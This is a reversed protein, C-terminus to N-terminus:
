SLQAQAEGIGAEVAQVLRDVQDRTLVLPPRITITDGSPRVIVGAKLATEYVVRGAAGPVDFPQKRGPDRWLEVAAAMGLGRVEGVVPYRALEKLRGILYAGTEAAAQPLNEREIIALNANGAACCTAHGSYTFGHSLVQEGLEGEITDVIRRSIIAGGLPLYGSTVGKAVTMIDPVVNWHEIGFWKGTRGFGCVVEDCIFLVGYKDCIARVRPFYDEPPPVHGGVGLVPEAIFAAVTDPGEELIAQELAEASHTEVQRFGPVLPGFHKRFQPLGSASLTALTLGHYSRQRSIIKHREPRGLAAFYCRAIKFATENAESGGSTFFVCDLDGPALSALKAALRIAPVNSYHYYSTSFCLQKSQAYIADAIERRGHGVLQTGMAAYGDIYENGDVDRIMSGQGSVIIIPGSRRHRALSVGPHLFYSKDLEKLEDGRLEAAPMPQNPM